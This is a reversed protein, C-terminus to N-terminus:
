DNNLIGFMHVEEDKAVQYDSFIMNSKANDEDEVKLSSIVNEDDLEDVFERIDEKSGYIDMIRNEVKPLRKIYIDINGIQGESIFTVMQLKKVYEYADNEFYTRLRSGALENEVIRENDESFITQQSYIQGNLYSTKNDRIALIESNRIKLKMGNQKNKFFYLEEAAIRDFINKGYLRKLTGFIKASVRCSYKNRVKTKGTDSYIYKKEKGCIIDNFIALIERKKDDALAFEKNDTIERVLKNLVDLNAESLEGSQLVEFIDEWVENSYNYNSDIIKMLYENINELTVHTAIYDDYKEVKLGLCEIENLKKQSDTILIFKNKELGLTKLISPVISYKRIDKFEDSQM